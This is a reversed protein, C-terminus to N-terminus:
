PEKKQGEHWPIGIPVVKNQEEQEKKKARDFMRSLSIGAGLEEESFADSNQEATTKKDQDVM